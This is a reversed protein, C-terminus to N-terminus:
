RGTINKAKYKADFNKWVNNLLKTHFVGYLFKDRFKSESQFHTEHIIKFKEGDDEFTIRQIGNSKNQKLYSFSVSRTERDLEVVQFAVPIQMQKIIDLELFFIQGIAIEPLEQTKGLLMKSAPDYEMEFRSTGHWIEHPRLKTLLDFAELADGTFRYTKKHYNMHSCSEFTPCSPELQSMDTGNEYLFSRVSNAVKPLDADQAFAGSCFLAIAAATHFKM